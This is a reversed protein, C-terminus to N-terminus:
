ACYRDADDGRGRLLGVVIDDIMIGEIGIRVIEEAGTIEEIMEEEITGEITGNVIGIEQATVLAIARLLCVEHMDTMEVVKMDMIIINVEAEVVGEVEDVAGGAAGEERNM